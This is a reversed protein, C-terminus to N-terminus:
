SMDNDKTSLPVMLSFTLWVTNNVYCLVSTCASIILTCPVILDHCSCLLLLGRTRQACMGLAVHLDVSVNNTICCRGTSMWQSYPLLRSTIRLLQQRAHITRRGRLSSYILRTYVVQNKRETAKEGREGGQLRRGWEWSICYHTTHQTIAQCKEGTNSQLERRISNGEMFHKLFYLDLNITRFLEGWGLTFM